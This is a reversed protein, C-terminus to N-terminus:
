LAPKFEKKRPAPDGTTTVFKINRLFSTIINNQYINTLSQYVKSYYLGIPATGRLCYVTMSYTPKITRLMIYTYTVNIVNIYM